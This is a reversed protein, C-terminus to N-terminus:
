YDKANLAIDNSSEIKQRKTDGFLATVNSNIIIVLIILIIIM